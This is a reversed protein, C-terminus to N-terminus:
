NMLSSTASAHHETMFEVRGALFGCTLAEAQSSARRHFLRGLFHTSSRVLGEHKIELIEGVM